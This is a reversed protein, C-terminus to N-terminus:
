SDDSKEERAIQITELAKQIREKAYPPRLNLSLRGKQIIYTESGKIRKPFCIIASSRLAARKEVKGGTVINVLGPNKKVTNEGRCQQM